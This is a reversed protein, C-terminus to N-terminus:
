LEGDCTCVPPKRLDLLGCEPAHHMVYIGQGLSPAAVFEPSTTPVSCCEGLTESISRVVDGDIDFALRNWGHQPIASGVVSAMMQGATTPASLPVDVDAFPVEMAVRMFSSIIGRLREIEDAAEHAYGMHFGTPDRLREVLTKTM